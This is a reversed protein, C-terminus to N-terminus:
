VSGEGKLLIQRLKGFRNKDPVEGGLSERILEDWIDSRSLFQKVRAPDPMRAPSKYKDPMNTEHDNRGFTVPTNIFEKMTAPLAGEPLLGDSLWM